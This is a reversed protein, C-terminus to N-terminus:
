LMGAARVTQVSARAEMAERFAIIKPFAAVDVGDGELWSCVVYLYVDALSVEDGLVFPGRLGNSCIYDCSATMTQAVKSQMDKWSSKKDAWREGRMKHAHNVHMTSALYYMVERMRAAMIPDSPVLGTQPAVTAIYDLLAGTETLIGGDVVLAPVRGKPNIQKYAPKTQEGGAFDLKIAEYELEAEELAIAVAVSITRPAYYLQM